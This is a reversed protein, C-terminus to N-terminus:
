KYNKHPGTLDRVIERDKKGGKGKEEERKSGYINSCCTHVSSGVDVGSWLGTGGV